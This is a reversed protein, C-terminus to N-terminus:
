IGGPKAGAHPTAAPPKPPQYQANYQISGAAKLLTAQLQKAVAEQRRKNTLLNLAFNTAKDGTFPEVRVATVQSAFVIADAPLIFVEHPPLKAIADVLAPNTSLADLTQPARKYALHQGGLLAEVQELSTLPKLQAMLAATPQASIRIQDISFIKREAFQDPHDSVYREAEDRTPPPVATAIKMELSQALLTDLARTKSVAFDPTKDLGQDKAAKALVKRTLIENLAAQEAQKRTVGPPLQVGKLEATLETQTIEAGDFTAVVQGTPAKAAGLHPFHCGALALGMLPAAVFGAHFKM